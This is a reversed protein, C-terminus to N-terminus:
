AEYNSVRDIVQRFFLACTLTHSLGRCANSMGSNPPAYIIWIFPVDTPILCIRQDADVRDSARLPLPRLSLEEQRLMTRVIQRVNSSCTPPQSCTPDRPVLPYGLFLHKKPSCTPPPRTPACLPVTHPIPQPPRPPYTWSISISISVYGYGQDCDVKMFTSQSRGM